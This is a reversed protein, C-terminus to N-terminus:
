QAKKVQLQLQKVEKKLGDYDDELDKIRIGRADTLKEVKALREEFTKGKVTSPTSKDTLLMTGAGMLFWSPDIGWKQLLIKVIEAPISSKGGKYNDFTQRTVGIEGAFEETSTCIREKKLYIYVDAIRTNM